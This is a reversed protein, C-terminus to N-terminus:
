DMDGHPVAEASLVIDGHARGTGMLSVHRSAHATAYVNCLGECM